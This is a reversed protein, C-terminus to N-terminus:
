TCKKFRCGHVQFLTKLRLHRPEDLQHVICLLFTPFGNASGNWLYFLLTKYNFCDGGAFISSAKDLHEEKFFQRLEVWGFINEVLSALNAILHENGLFKASKWCFKWVHRCLDIWNYYNVFSFFSKNIEFWCELCIFM